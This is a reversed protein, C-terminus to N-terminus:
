LAYNVIQPFLCKGVKETTNQKGTKGWVPRGGMKRSVSSCRKDRTKHININERSGESM